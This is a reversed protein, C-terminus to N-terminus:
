IRGVFPQEKLVEEFEKEPLPPAFYFGQIYDVGLKRLLVVQDELEVGEALTEIGFKKALNIITTTIYCTKEDELILDIFSKDIKVLDIPFDKLYNLASYGTGFDDLAVKIDYSKLLKLVKQFRPINKALSRETIEIVMPVPLNSLLEEYKTILEFIQSSEFTKPSINISIPIKWTKIRNLNTYFTLDEFEKLYPSNE